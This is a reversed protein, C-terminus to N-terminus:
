FNEFSQLIWELFLLAVLASAFWILLDIDKQVTKQVIAPNVLEDETRLINSQLSPVKVYFHDSVESDSLLTQTCTYVGCNTLTLTGPFADLYADVGNGKVSLTAGRANLTVVDNVDFVHQTLTAPMFYDLMSYMMLPFELLVALNSMNLSFSLVAIKEDPENRVIFVPDGACYMIPEFGDCSKIQMYETVTILETDLSSTIVHPQGPALNFEGSKREGLTIGLGEPVESPNILFVVGDTPLATPMVHEFIYFDFGSLIPKGKNTNLDLQLDWRDKLIDRLGLLAGDVFNNQLSSCYQVKISDHKGGYLFYDNDSPFSDQEEVWVRVYNYSYVPADMNEADFTVVQVRDGDCRVPVKMEYNEITDNVEYITCFLTIDADRGYCALDATFTYYGETLTATCGLVSANWEGTESVDVVTVRGKNIYETGTYYLVEADPNEVLVSEALEMAGKIDANGYTCVLGDLSEKIDAIYEPGTRQVAYSAKDGAWIVTLLGDDKAVDDALDKIENVAREFRTSGDSRALMSAAADIIAIKEASTETVEAAIVPQALILACATVILIQCIIILLNRLRNIPIRKRRYKLSLKWIRTSSIIKQQYNPKLIYILILIGIGLLGLLGLPLLLSM